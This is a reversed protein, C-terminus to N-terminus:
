AGGFVSLLTVTNRVDEEPNNIASEVKSMLKKLVRLQYREPPPFKVNEVNFLQEFLWTQVELMKLVTAGPWTLLEPRLLQFYQRKFLQLQQQANGLGVARMAMVGHEM